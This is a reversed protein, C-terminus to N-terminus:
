NEITFNLNRWQFFDWYNRWLGWCQCCQEILWLHPWCLARSKQFIEWSNFVVKRILASFIYLSCVRLVVLVWLSRFLRSLLWDNNHFIECFITFAALGSVPLDLLLQDCCSSLVNNDNLCYCSYCCGFPIIKNIKSINNNNRTCIEM